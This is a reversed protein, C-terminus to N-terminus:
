KIEEKIYAEIQEKADSSVNQYDGTGVANEIIRKINNFELFIIKQRQPDQPNYEVHGFESGGTNLRIESVGLNKFYGPNQMEIEDIVEKVIPEQPYVNITVSPEPSTIQATKKQKCKYCLENITIVQHKDRRSCRCNEINSKCQYCQLTGHGNYNKNLFDRAEDRTPYKSKNSFKYWNM